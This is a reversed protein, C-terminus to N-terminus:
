KCAGVLKAETKSGTSDTGESRNGFYSTTVTKVTKVAGGSCSATYVVQSGDAKVDTIKCIEPPIITELYAKVAKADGNMGAADSPSVCSSTNYTKGGVITTGVWQGARVRDAAQASLALGIFVLMSLIMLYRNTKM